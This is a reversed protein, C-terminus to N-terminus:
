VMVGISKRCIVTFRLPVQIFLFDLNHAEAPIKQILEGVKPVYLIDYGLLVGLHLRM